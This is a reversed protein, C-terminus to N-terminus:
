WLLLFCVLSIALSATIACVQARPLLSAPELDAQAVYAEFHRLGPRITHLCVTHGGRLPRSIPTEHLGAPVVEICIWPQGKNYVDTGPEWM